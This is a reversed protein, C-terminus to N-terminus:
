KLDYDYPFECLMDKLYSKEGDSLAKRWGFAWRQTHSYFIVNDIGRFNHDLLWNKGDQEIEADAIKKAAEDKADQVIKSVKLRLGKLKEVDRAEKGLGQERRYAPLLIAMEESSLEPRKGNFSNAAPLLRLLKLEKEELYESGLCKTCFGTTTPEPYHQGCYGCKHVQNRIAVMEPTIELWHGYRTTKFKPNHASEEYYDFLRRGKDGAENWQNDFLFSPDLEVEEVIHPFRQPYDMKGICIMPSGAGEGQTAKRLADIEKAEPSGREVSYRHLKTKITQMTM